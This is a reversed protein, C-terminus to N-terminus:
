NFILPTYDILNKNLVYKQFDDFSIETYDTYRMNYSFQRDPYFISEDDLFAGGGFKNNYWENVIDANEKNRVVCWKEPIM